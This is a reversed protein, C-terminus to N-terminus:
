FNLDISDAEVQSPDFKSAMMEMVKLTSVCDSYADHSPMGSLNPLKHWRLGNKKENWEGMWESYKEMACSIGSVKPTPLDYKKFLSWLLKVDFASNYCVVHKNELVFAIMKAVQPFMPQHQVQENTIGHIGVVVDDMPKNPKLLMSFLPKGKTDTISLQCIETDPDKSPLGTTETDVVVTALDALRETAWEEAKAKIEKLETDTPKM